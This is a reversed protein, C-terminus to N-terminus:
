HTSGSTVRRMDDESVSDLWEQMDKTFSKDMARRYLSAILFMKIDAIDPPDNENPSTIRIHTKDLLVALIDETM